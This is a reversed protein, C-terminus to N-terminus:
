TPNWNTITWLKFMEGSFILTCFHICQDIGITLFFLYYQQKQWLPSTIKSTIADVMYHAVTNFIVFLLLPNLPVGALYFGVFLTAGYILVHMLLAIQNHSKNRAM